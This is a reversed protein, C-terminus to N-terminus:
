LQLVLIGSGGQRQSLSKQLSYRSDAGHATPIVVTCVWSWKINQMSAATLQIHLTLIYSCVSHLVKKSSVPARGHSAPTRPCDPLLQGARGEEGGWNQAKQGIELSDPLLISGEAVISKWIDQLPCSLLLGLETNRTFSVSSSLGCVSQM